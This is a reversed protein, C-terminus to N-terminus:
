EWDKVERFIDEIVFGICPIKDSVVPDNGEFLNALEYRGDELLQYQDLTRAETDVVWYEPVGHEAYARRKILKDRKHSSPSLIEIVLDPPGEIGRKTVIHERSRHIMLIDPQVVTTQSLIVDIPAHFVLYDKRCSQKIILALEGSVAQHTTSPGPSIMEMIGNVIEYRQGDDPWEAYMEYTVPPELVQDATKKQADRNMGM